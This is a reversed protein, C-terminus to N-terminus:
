GQRVIIEQSRELSHRLFVVPHVIDVLARDHKMTRSLFRAGGPVSRRALFSSDSAGPFFNKRGFLGRGQLPKLKRPFSEM